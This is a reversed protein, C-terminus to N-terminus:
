KHNIRFNNKFNVEFRIKAKPFSRDSKGKHARKPKQLSHFYMQREEKRHKKKEPDIRKHANKTSKLKNRLETLNLIINM